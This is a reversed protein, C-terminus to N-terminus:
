ALSVWDKGGQLSGVTVAPSGCLVAHVGHSVCCHRSIIRKSTEVEESYNGRNDSGLQHQAKRRYPQGSTPAPHSGSSQFKQCSYGIQNRCHIPYCRRPSRICQWAGLHPEARRCPDSIM